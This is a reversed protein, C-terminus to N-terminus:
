ESIAITTRTGKIPDNSDIGKLPNQLSRVEELLGNRVDNMHRQSRPLGGAQRRVRREEVIPHVQGIVEIQHPRQSTLTAPCAARHYEEARVLLLTRVLWETLGPAYNTGNAAKSTEPKAGLEQQIQFKV